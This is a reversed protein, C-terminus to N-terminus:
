ITGSKQLNICKRGLANRSMLARCGETFHHQIIRAIEGTM